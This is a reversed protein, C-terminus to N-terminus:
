ILIVSLALHSRVPLPPPSEAPATVSLTAVAALQHSTDDSVTLLAHFPSAFELDIGVTSALWQCQSHRCDHEDGPDHDCPSTGEHRHHHHAHALKQVAHNSFAAPLAHDAAFHVTHSCCGLLAHALVSTAILSAILQRMFGKVFMLVPIGFYERSRGSLRCCIKATAANRIGFHIVM